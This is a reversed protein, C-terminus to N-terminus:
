NVLQISNKGTIDFVTCDYKWTSTIVYFHHNIAHAQLSAGGSYASPWVVVQAGLEAMKQWLSPINADFCIAIGLKGFDVDFVMPEKGISVPPTYIFEEWYPYVKDYIGQIKGSRNILIASNIRPISETKRYMGSVIYTKYRAALECLKQVEPSDLTEIVDTGAWTEPLCVLDSEMQGALHVADWVQENNKKFFSLSTVRIEPSKASM